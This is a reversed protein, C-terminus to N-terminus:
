RPQRAVVTAETEIVAGPEAPADRRAGFWRASVRRSRARMEPTVLAAVATLAMVLVGLDDSYGAGPILDPIADIPAIFYGLAGIVTTKAWVPTCPDRLVQSLLVAKEVVERGAARAYNRLKAILGDASYVERYASTRDDDM